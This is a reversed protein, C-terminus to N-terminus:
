APGAPDNITLVLRRDFERPEIAGLPLEVLSSDVGDIRVRVFLNEKGLRYLERVIPDPDRVAVEVRTGADSLTVVGSLQVNGAFGEIQQDTKMGGALLPPRRLQLRLTASTVPRPIAASRVVTLMPRAAAPEVVIEPLLAFPMPDTTFFREPDGPRAAPVIRCAAVVYLGAPWHVPDDLVTWRVEETSIHQIGARVIIPQAFRQHRFELVVDTSDLNEGNIVLEDGPRVGAQARPLRFGMIRPEAVVADANFGSDRDDGRSLVPPASRTPRGSDILVVSAEYAVSLRYPSQFGSWLKSMEDLSMPQLTLRVSEFQKALNSNTIVNGSGTRPLIPESHFKLMVSALMQHALRDDDQDGFATILYGLRLALLPAAHEGPKVQTPVDQNRWAADPAVQYLFLNVQNNSEKRMLQPPGVTVNANPFGDSKLVTETQKILIETVAAVGLFTSM